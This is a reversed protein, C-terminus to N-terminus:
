QNNTIPPPVRNAPLRQRLRNVARYVITSVNTESLGSLKAIIKNTYGDFFKLYIIEKEREPLEKLLQEIELATEREYSLEEPDKAPTPLERAEELNRNKNTEKNGRRYFDVLTHHAIKYLWASFSVGQWRFNDLGSLAKAFVQATLEDGEESRLHRQFYRKILPQYHTFLPAFEKRNKQSKKILLEEEEPPLSVRSM